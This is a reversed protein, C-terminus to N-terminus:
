DRSRLARGLLKATIDVIPIVREYAMRTPGIVGLVGMTDDETQYPAAVISCGDLVKYGSEQGIFIQVGDAHLSQDLLHLMDRRHSFAEFLEKLKDMDALEELGMLNTEGAVFFDTDPGGEPFAAQALNIAELMMANMTERASTLEGLLRRRVQYLDRGGFEQTLYNAAQRLESESFERELELIKNQVDRENVVLIALVRRGSLPLFEIQRLKMQARRPVTVVGALRTVASLLNSASVAIAQPDGAVERLGQQFLILEDGKPPTLRVLTDVFFRYGKITPVRGASTHPSAVFGLEELDAVINRITAPSLDL